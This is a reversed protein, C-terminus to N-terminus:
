MRIIKTNLIIYIVVPAGILSTIANLPLVQNSGPLQAVIDCVLLLSSGGMLVSPILIKHNSTKISMRVLHPVALGIFAIPGCFATTVGVLISTASVIIMRSRSLNIGVSQAYNEGLLWGNLAKMSGVSLALGCLAAVTIVSIETWNTGGVSGFTWIVFSQLDNARSFFQLVSVLSIAGASIMLGIVLLSTNDRVKKAIALVLSFVVTCGFTAAAAISWTNGILFSIWSFRQSALLLIAVMLSAGASLGLVDPGALPNRFLTQMLLGGLALSGGVVICTVAKPLRFQWVIDHWAPPVSKNGILISLIDKPSIDVSGLGINLFFLALTVLLLLIQFQIVRNRAM